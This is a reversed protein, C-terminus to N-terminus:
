RVLSEWVIGTMSFLIRQLFLSLTVDLQDTPLRVALTHATEFSSHLNAWITLQPCHKPNEMKVQRIYWTYEFWPLLGAQGRAAQGSGIRSYSVARLLTRTNRHQLSTHLM